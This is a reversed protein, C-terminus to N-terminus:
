KTNGRQGSNIPSVEWVNPVAIRITVPASIPRAASGTTNMWSRVRLGSSPVGCNASDMLVQDITAWTSAPTSIM